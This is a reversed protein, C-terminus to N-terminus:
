NSQFTFLKGILQAKMVDGEVKLRGSSFAKMGDLRGTILELFDQEAMKIITTAKEATGPDVRCAGDRVAVSWDGGGSGTIHFQFVLDKGAAAAANFAQPLRSFVGRVDLATGEKRDTSEKEAVVPTVLAMVAGTAEPIEAATALSNIRDWNDRIDELSPPNLRDGLQVGTTTLVAARSFFGAAANFILGSDRCLGSCLYMAIAVVFEPSMKQYIAPPMIDETLRSAALPALTNVLINHKRGELKLTNMLGVLGMKATSYNTQGFNGYLGAASTTMIIRGYGQEKMVGFAPKTVHFAGNLHVDLVAQWSELDMKPFSRDRLIGANNILIDVRGFHDLATKIVAEGGEPTTVTDYSAVAQGGQAVIEAVVLDAPRSSGSGTGDRSGGLDNVVVKAGRRAMELAYARGLGGGAGTIVAVQGDFRIEPEFAAGPRPVAKWFYGSFGREDDVFRRRFSMAVPAGVKVDALECDTFDAMFRGGGEFQIMGYIAPPDVSVALMDGTFTKVKAPVQAFEYDDQCHIAGCAPNVCIDMKPFQPTGCNRCKGGTLGLIMKRNRWLATMATQTPAEGRIGMEPDILGRFKLFKLYNDTTKKYALSGAVGRRARLRTINDTVRFMLADSGQGFGALLLLQGPEAKELASIFMVLAHAAGTEGCVDHLNDVLQKPTAGIAKAIARHEAKFICPFALQDVKDITIDLKKLLGQIAEPIIKGYGEERAWREEWMYDFPHQAGRYHDVFDYSVSHSGLFEAIVEEQGVMLAAAGDGFWLEYFSGPKTERKDAAAVLINKSPNGAAVELATLLGSTGARLCSTFDATEMDSALNLATALIGANQRDAFPLTTSCLYSANILSKDKGTLCDQAAAVAMTLSDEDHNCMSREGQAVMIIAPAFWGMAQFVAMRNLRLRPIYAGYSTIGTM